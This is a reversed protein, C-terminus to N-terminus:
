AAQARELQARWTAISLNALDRWRQPKDMDQALREYHAIMQNCESILYTRM